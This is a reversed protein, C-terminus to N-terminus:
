FNFNKAIDDPLMDTLWVAVAQFQVILSSDRWDEMKPAGTLGALSVIVTVLIVGRLVGFIVGFVRDVGQMGSREVAKAAYRNILVFIMMLIIFLSVFAVIIRLKPDEISSLFISALTSHLNWAVMYSVLWATLSLAERVYGRILSYLSSVLIIGIILFDIWTM